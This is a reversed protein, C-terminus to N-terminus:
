EEVALAAAVSPFEEGTIREKQERLQDGARGMRRHMNATIIRVLSMQAKMKRTRNASMLDQLVVRAQEIESPLLAKKEIMRNLLVESQANQISKADEDSIIGTEVLLRLADSDAPSM